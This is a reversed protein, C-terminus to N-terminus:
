QRPASSEIAAQECTTNTQHDKFLARVDTGQKTALAGLLRCMAQVEQTTALGATDTVASQNAANDAADRASSAATCSAFMTVLLVIIVWGSLHAPTPEQSPERASVPSSSPGTM